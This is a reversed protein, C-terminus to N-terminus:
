NVFLLGFLVRCYSVNKFYQNRTLEGFGHDLSRPAFNKRIMTHIIRWIYHNDDAIDSAVTIRRVATAQGISKDM